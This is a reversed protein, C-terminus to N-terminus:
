FRQRNKDMTRNTQGNPMIPQKIKMSARTTAAGAPTPSPNPNVEGVDRETGTGGGRETEAGRHRIMSVNMAELDRCWSTIM